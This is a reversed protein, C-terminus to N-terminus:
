GRIRRVFGLSQQASLIHPHVRRRQLRIRRQFRDHPPVVSNAVIRVHRLQHLLLADFLRRRRLPLPIVPLTPFRQRIPLPQIGMVPFRPDGPHLVAARVQTVFGFVRHVQVASRQHRHRHLRAIAPVRRAQRHPQSLGSARHALQGALLGIRVCHPRHLLEAFQLRARVFYLLDM